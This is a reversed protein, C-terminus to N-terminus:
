AIIELISCLTLLSRPLSSSSSLVRVLLMQVSSQALLLANDLPRLLCALEDGALRRARERQEVPPAQQQLQRERQVIELEAKNQQSELANLDARVKQAIHELRDVRRSFGLCVHSLSKLPM